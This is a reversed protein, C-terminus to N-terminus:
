GFRQIVAVIIAAGTVSVAWRVGTLALNEMQLRHELQLLRYEARDLWQEVRALREDVSM